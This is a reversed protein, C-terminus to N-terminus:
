MNTRLYTSTRQSSAALNLFVDNKDRPALNNDPFSTGEWRGMKSFLEMSEQPTVGM